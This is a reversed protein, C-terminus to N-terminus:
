TTRAVLPSPALQIMRRAEYEPRIFIMGIVGGALMILGCILFGDNFGQAPSAAAEVVSGMVYPALLGATTGIANCIALLAGRQSTPTIEGIVASSIVYIVSPFAMGVGFVAIKVAVNDIYPMAVLLLGGFAVSAGGVIGRAIRSSSGRAMMRQSYWSLSIVIFVGLGSTLGTLLGVSSQQFGLGKVLFAAQWMLSLSLAWYAGFYACLCAVITPCLLLQRYPVRSDSSAAMPKAESLAGERGLLGWALTWVLGGLGLAGFAWHWSHHVVILNLLPLVLMIGVGAGQAIIATPLARQENPFWKYAAHLAMPYAPGEGAGLAIRCAALTAFGVSGIMPFQTLAWILGMVLLIWRSQVRNAIFGVVISSLAFLLFFSSGLLGFERPTLKLETMIPVACLGIIAKDCFNILMFFFLLSVILWAGPETKRDTM